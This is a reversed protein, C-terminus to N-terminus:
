WKGWERHSGWEDDPTFREGGKYNEMVYSAWIGAVACVAGALIAGMLGSM